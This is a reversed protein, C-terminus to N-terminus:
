DQSASSQQTQLYTEQNKKMTNITAKTLPSKGLIDAVYDFVEDLKDEEALKEIFEEIDKSTVDRYQLFGAKLANFLGPVNKMIINQYLLQVGMGFTVGSAEYTYVSDLWDIAKISYKLERTNDKIVLEM